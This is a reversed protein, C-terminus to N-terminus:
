ASSELMLGPAHRTRTPLIQYQSHWHQSTARWFCRGCWNRGGTPRDTIMMQDKCSQGNLHVIDANIVLSGINLKRALNECGGTDEQSGHTLGGLREPVTWKIWQHQTVQRACDNVTPAWVFNVLYSKQKSFNHQEMKLADGVARILFWGVFVRWSKKFNRSRQPVNAVFQWGFGVKKKEM